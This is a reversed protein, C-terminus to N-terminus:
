EELVDIKKEVVKLLEKFMKKELKQELSQAMVDKLLTNILTDKQIPNNGQLSKMTEKLLPELNASAGTAQFYPSEPSKLLPDQNM